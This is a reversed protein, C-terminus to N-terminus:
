LFLNVKELASRIRANCAVGGSVVITPPVESPWFDKLQTFEIARQLRKGLFTALCHEFSYYFTVYYFEKITMFGICKFLGHVTHLYICFM